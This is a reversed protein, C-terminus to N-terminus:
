RVDVVLVSGDFLFTVSALVGADNLIMTQVHWHNERSIDSFTLSGDSGHPVM